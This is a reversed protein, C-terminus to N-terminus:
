LRVAQGPWRAAGTATQGDPSGDTGSGRGTHVHKRRPGARRLGVFAAAALGGLGVPWLAGGGFGSGGGDDTLRVDPPDGPQPAHGGAVDEDRDNRDDESGAPVPAPAPYSPEVGARVEAATLLYGPGTVLADDDLLAIAPDDLLWERAVPQAPEDGVHITAGIVDAFGTRCPDDCVVVEYSGGALDAPLTFDAQLRLAAWDSRGTPRVDLAGVRLDSPHVFPWTDAPPDRYAETPDVRLYAYYPADTVAGGAGTGGTYGVITVHDGPAYSDEIPSLWTGGALAPAPAALVACAVLPAALVYTAHRLTV